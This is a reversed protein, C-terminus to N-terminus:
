SLTGCAAVELAYREQEVEDDHGSNFLETFFKILSPEIVAYPVKYPKPQMLITPATDGPEQFVLWVNHGTPLYLLNLGPYSEKPWEDGIGLRAEIHPNVLTEFRQHWRDRQVQCKRVGDLFAFTTM